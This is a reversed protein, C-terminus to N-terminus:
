GVQGLKRRVEEESVRGVMQDKLEGRNFILLTPVAGVGYQEALQRQHEMKVRAVKVPAPNSQAISELLPTMAKCLDSWGAWFAVLVPSTADLVEREFNLENLDIVDTSM